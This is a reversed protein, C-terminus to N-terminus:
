WLSEKRISVVSNEPHKGDGPKGPEPPSASKQGWDDLLLGQNELAAKIAERTSRETNEAVPNLFAVTKDRVCVELPPGGAKIEQLYRSLNAKLDAVRVKM